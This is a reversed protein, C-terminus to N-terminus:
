SEEQIHQPDPKIDQEDAVVPDHQERAADGLSRPQDGEEPEGFIGSSSSEDAM